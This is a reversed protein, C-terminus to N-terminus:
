GAAQAQHGAHLQGQGAAPGGGGRGKAGDLGQQPAAVNEQGFALVGVDDAEGRRQGDGAGLEGPGDGFQMFSQGGSLGM